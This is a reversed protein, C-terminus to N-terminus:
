LKIKLINGLVFVSDVQNGVLHPSDYLEIGDMETLVYTQLFNQLPRSSKYALWNAKASLLEFDRVFVGKKEEDWVPHGQACIRVDENNHIESTETPEFTLCVAVQNNVLRLEPNRLIGASLTKPFQTQLSENLVQESVSLTYNLVNIAVLMGVLVFIVGGVVPILIPSLKFSYESM